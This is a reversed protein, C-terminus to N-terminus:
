STYKTKLHHICTTVPDMTGLKSPFVASFSSVFVTTDIYTQQDPCFFTWSWKWKRTASESNPYIEYILSYVSVQITMLDTNKNTLDMHTEPSHPARGWRNPGNTQRSIHTSVGYYDPRGCGHSWRMVGSLTQCVCVALQRSRASWPGRCGRSVSRTLLCCIGVWWYTLPLGGIINVEVLSCHFNQKWWPKDTLLVWFTISPNHHVTLGTVWKYKRYTRFNLLSENSPCSTGHCFRVLLFVVQNGCVGYYILEQWELIIKM